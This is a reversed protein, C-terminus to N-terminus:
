LERLIRERKAAHEQETILGDALLWKLEQLRTQIDGGDGSVESVPSHIVASTSTIPTSAMTVLQCVTHVVGSCLLYLIPITLLCTNLCLLILGYQELLIAPRLIIYWVECLTAAYILCLAIQSLTNRSIRVTTAHVLALVASAAVVLELIIFFACDGALESRIPKPIKSFSHLDSILGIIFLVIYVGAIAGQSVRLGTTAKLRIRVNTAVIVGLLMLLKMIRLFGFDLLGSTIVRRSAISGYSTSYVLVVLLVVGFLGLGAHSIAAPLGRLTASLVIAAAGILWSGVLFVVFASAESPADAIIDWSMYVVGGVAMWPLLATLLLLCGCILEYIPFGSHVPVVQLLSRGPTHVMRSGTLPPDYKASRAAEALSDLRDQTVPVPQSTPDSSPRESVRNGPSQRSTMPDAVRLSPGRQVTTPIRRQAGCAPCRGVRGALRDAVKLAKGCECRFEIM